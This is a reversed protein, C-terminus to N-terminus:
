SRAICFIQLSLSKFRTLTALYRFINDKINIKRPM